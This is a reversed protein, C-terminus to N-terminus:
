IDNERIYAELISHAKRIWFRPHTDRKSNLLCEAVDAPAGQIDFALTVEYPVMNLPNKVELWSVSLPARNESEKLFHLAKGLNSKDTGKKGLRALYKFASGEYYSLGYGDVVSFVDKIVVSNTQYRTPPTNVGGVEDPLENMRATV